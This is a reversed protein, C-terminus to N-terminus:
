LFGLLGHRLRQGRALAGSANVRMDYQGGCLSIRWDRQGGRSSDDFIDLSYDDINTMEACNFDMDGFIGAHKWMSCVFVCCVMAAGEAPEGYRTTNYVWSDQEVITPM